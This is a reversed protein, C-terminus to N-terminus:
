PNFIKEELKIATYNVYLVIYTEPASCLSTVDHFSHWLLNLSHVDMMEYLDFDFFYFCIKTILVRQVKKVIKTHLM